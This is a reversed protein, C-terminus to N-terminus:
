AHRSHSGYRCSLVSLARYIGLRLEWFCGPSMARRPVARAGTRRRLVRVGLKRVHPTRVRALHGPFGQHHWRPYGPRERVSGAHRLPLPQLAPCCEPIQVRAHSRVAEVLRASVARRRHPLELGRGSALGLRFSRGSRRQQRKWGPIYGYSVGGDVADSAVGDGGGPPSGGIGDPAPPGVCRSRAGDGNTGAGAGEEIEANTSGFSRMSSHIALLGRVRLHGRAIGAEDGQILCCCVSIVARRGRIRNM